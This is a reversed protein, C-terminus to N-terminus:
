TRQQPTNPIVTTAELCAQRKHNTKNCTHRTQITVLRTSPACMLANDPGCRSVGLRNSRIARSCSRLLACTRVYVSPSGPPRYWSPMHHSSLSGPVFVLRTLAIYSFIYDDRRWRRGGRGFYRARENGDPRRAGPENMGSTGSRTRTAPKADFGARRHAHGQECGVDGPWRHQTATLGHANARCEEVVV